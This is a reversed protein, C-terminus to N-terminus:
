QGTDEAIVIGDAQLHQPSALFYLHDMHVFTKIYRRLQTFMEFSNCHSLNYYVYNASTIAIYNAIYSAVYTAVYRNICSFMM